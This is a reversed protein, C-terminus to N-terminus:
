LSSYKSRLHQRVVEAITNFMFTFMFLILAALFLVRYHTSGVESEPMEVAINASFTRMGEFFSFDLVPTNGTAMLVIMTEGVARGFGIMVASFIGPSATLIVVRTLTQWPTAGLALSGTTLHKPVSFIADEAISFITPIIAFGMAFGVVMANRQDYGIGLEENLWIPLNGGFFASEIMPSVAIAVWVFFIIVPILLVPQWGDPVKGAISHPLKYWVYAFIIVFLPLLIAVSFVGPMHTELFPAFWLGALFGLIVTPLAEMIEITPKVSQRLKPSMFYATYVAGLIALPMAILMAYFAAKLTGFSLPVLSFKPEFENSASSSQWIYDPESYGEYWVKEWLSSVSIEPYENSIHWFHISGDESEALFHDARPSIALHAVKGSGINQQLLTSHATLHHIGLVGKDNISIFGKRFFEPSIHSVSSENLKFDRVFTLSYHNNEDRVPFWQAVHGNEHGILISFSGAAFKIDTIRSGSDVLSKSEFLQVDEADSIDYFYVSGSEDFIFAMRQTSDILVKNPEYNLTDLSYDFREFVVEDDFMSEEYVFSTLEMQNDEAVSILTLSEEGNQLALQKIPQVTSFIELPDEGLIYEYKPSVVKKDDTYNIKFGAKIVVVSGNELGYAIIGSSTEAIAFSSVPSDVLAKESIVEGTETFFSVAKGNNTFRIGIKAHEDLIYHISKEPKDKSIHGVNGELNSQPISYTQLKKIEPSEFLPMVVMLLYFFILTIAIIVSLGGLSVVWAALKDNLMRWQQRRSTGAFIDSKESNTTM